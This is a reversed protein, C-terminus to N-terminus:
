AILISGRRMQLSNSQPNDITVNPSVLVDPDLDGRGNNSMYNNEIICGDQLNDATFFAGDNPGNNMRIGYGNATLLFVTEVVVQVIFTYISQDGGNVARVKYAYYNGAVVTTDTYTIVNAGTTVLLSFASSNTSRYIEFGTENNSNDHWTLLVQPGAQVVAALTTPATIAM